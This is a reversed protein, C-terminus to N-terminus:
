TGWIPLLAFDDLETYSSKVQSPRSISPRRYREAGPQGTQRHSKVNPGVRSYGDTDSINSSTCWKLSAANQLQILEKVYKKTM